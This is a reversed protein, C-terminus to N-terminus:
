PHVAQQFQIRLVTWGIVYCFLCKPHSAFHRWGGLVVGIRFILIPTHSNPHVSVTITITTQVTFTYITHLQININKVYNDHDDYCAM